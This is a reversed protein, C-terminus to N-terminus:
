KADQVAEPLYDKWRAVRVLHRLRRLAKAEIERIRERTLGFRHGVSELTEGRDKSLGFRHFIVVKEALPLDQLAEILPRQCEDPNIQDLLGAGRFVAMILPPLRESRILALDCTLREATPNTICRKLYNIEERLDVIRKKYDERIGGIQQRTTLRLKDIDSECAKCNM